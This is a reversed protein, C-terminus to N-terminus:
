KGVGVKECVVGFVGELLVWLVCIGGFIIGRDSKRMDKMEDVWIGLFGM